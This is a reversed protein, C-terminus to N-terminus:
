MSSMVIWLPAHPPSVSVDSVPSFRHLALRVYVRVSDPPAVETHTCAQPVLFVHDRTWNLADFVLGVENLSIACPQEGDNRTDRGAKSVAQRIKELATAFGDVAAADFAVACRDFQFGTVDFYDIPSGRGDALGRLILACTHPAQTAVEATNM